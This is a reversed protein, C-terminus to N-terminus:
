GTLLLRPPDPAANTARSTLLALAVDFHRRAVALGSDSEDVEVGVHGLSSARHGIKARSSLDDLLHKPFGLDEADLGHPIWVALGQRIRLRFSALGDYHAAVISLLASLPIAPRSM